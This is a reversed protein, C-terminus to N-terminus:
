VNSTMVPNVSRASEPMKELETRHAAKSDSTRAAHRSVSLMVGFALSTALVSIGGKSILPLPQGSVPVVGSVISMHFLAQFVIVFACAMVLTGPMTHRFSVTLKASRGLIWMYVALIILGGVLGGEEVIIAYVYDSYALPLRANERSKGPGVGIWGGHAQAVYSLLEQQNDPGLTDLYKDGRFHREVRNRWTQGRGDASKVDTSEHNLELARKQDASLEVNEKVKTKVYLAGAGCVGFFALVIFFKRLGMGGVLMMSFCIAVTVITNSLGQEFLLWCCVTMFLVTGGVGVWTVDRCNKMQTKALIWAVGLAAGLKMFEAPLIPVGGIRIARVAGNIDTGGYKVAIMLAICGLSFAPILRYIITYHVQQLIIMLVLGAAIFWGHRIIPGFIDGDTVEQISASFLEIVAVMVLLLYTGWLHHDIRKKRVPPAPQPEPSPTTNRNEASDDDPRVGLATEVARSLSDDM